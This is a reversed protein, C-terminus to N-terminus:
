AAIARRAPVEAVPLRRGFAWVVLGAAFIVISTWQGVGLGAIVGREVDGRFVEIVTRLVAYSLLWAALVQGHFRKRPRLWLALVLFLALEGFAEYLQTPHLPLTHLRDATLYSAADPRASFASWALSSRPFSVLWPEGHGVAGWCCGACFCGLRGFFHGLAVSPILVDAYQLAPMRHRRLYGVAAIAAAIFGGYFVLGGQWVALLRPVRGIATETFFAGPGFYDRFNVAVFYLRAGVFAAALVWFCLDAVRDADLGVRRAERQALAVGTLCGVAILLGYAHLPVDIRGRLAGTAVLFALVGAVVALFPLDLALARLFSVPAHAARARVVYAIERWLVLLVAVAIAAPLGLGAPLTLHFLVPLM